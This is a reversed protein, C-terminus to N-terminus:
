SDVCAVCMSAGVDRDLVGIAISIHLIIDRGYGAKAFEFIAGVLELPEHDLIRAVLPAQVFCPVASDLGEALRSCVWADAQCYVVQFAVIRAVVSGQAM